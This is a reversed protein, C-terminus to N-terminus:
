GVPCAQGGQAKGPCFAAGGRGPARICAHHGSTVLPKPESSPSVPPTGRLLAKPLPFGSSPHPRTSVSCGSPCALGAPIHDYEREWWLPFVPCPPRKTGSSVCTPPSLAPRSGLGVQPRCLPRQDSWSSDPKGAGDRLGLLRPCLVFGGPQAGLGEELLCPEAKRLVCPVSDGRCVRGTGM